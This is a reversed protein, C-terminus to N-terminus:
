AIRLCNFNIVDLYYKNLQIQEYSAVCDIPYYMLKIPYRFLANGLASEIWTWEMQIINTWKSKNLYLFVPVFSVFFFTSIRDYCICTATWKKLPRSLSLSLSLSLPRPRFPTNELSWSISSMTAADHEGDIPFDLKCDLQLLLFFCSWRLLIFIM